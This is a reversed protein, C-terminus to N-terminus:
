NIISSEDVESVGQDVARLQLVDVRWGEALDRFRHHVRYTGDGWGRQTICAAVAAKYPDPM